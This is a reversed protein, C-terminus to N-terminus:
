DACAAEVDAVTKPIAPGLVRCGSDTVVVNDEVRYGRADRFKEVEAFNLFQANTSDAKWQDILAPVFYIGPEVTLAFGPGLTRALRLYALGFQTSRTFDPGYGVLEEGLNEM